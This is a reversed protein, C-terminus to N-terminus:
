SWPERTTIVTTDHDAAEEIALAIQQDQAGEALPYPPPGEGRVWDTTRELLTAMAIEEDMWRRGVYPNRYLVESGFTIHETDYGVLDLDYGSQRRLLPTRVLTRPGTMRVVQDDHLEGESGRVTLRRSRLQNRTQRETYDYM